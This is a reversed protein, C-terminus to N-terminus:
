GLRLNPSRGDAIATEICRALKGFGRQVWGWVCALHYQGSTLKQKVGGTCGSPAIGSLVPAEQIFL